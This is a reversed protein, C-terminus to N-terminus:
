DSRGGITTAEVLQRTPVLSRDLGLERPPVGMALGMLQTFFVIPIKFNTGYAKNVNGQFFELNDHCLPCITAICQAGSSQASALLKHLLRLALEPQTGALMAGCCRAKLPFDTPEAGIAELLRDLSQPSEPDDFGNSPRTLQCGYYPAVKLGELPRTSAERIADLGVDNVMVDLLHRVHVSGDYSLNGAALAENVKERIEPYKLYHDNAKRLINYCGNCPTVLDGGQQQALALDRGAMSFSLIDNVNIGATAGCCNWDQLEDLDLDLVRSVAEISTAYPKAAGGTITCGPFFTYRM